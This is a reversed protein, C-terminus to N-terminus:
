EVRAVAAVSGAGSVAEVEEEVMAAASCSAHSTITSCGPSMSVTSTNWYSSM